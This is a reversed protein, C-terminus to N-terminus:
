TANSVRVCKTTASDFGLQYEGYVSPVLTHHRINYTALVALEATSLTTFTGTVGMVHLYEKPIEAYSFSGCRLTIKIAQWAVMGVALCCPLSHRCCSLM